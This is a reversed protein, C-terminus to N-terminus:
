CSLATQFDITVTLPQECPFCFLFFHVDTRSKGLIYQKFELMFYNWGPYAQSADTDLIPQTVRGTAHVTIYMPSMLAVAPPVDNDEALADSTDISTHISQEAIVTAHM